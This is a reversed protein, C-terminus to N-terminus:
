HISRPHMSTVLAPVYSIPPVQVLTALLAVCLVCVCVRARACVCVCVRVCVRVVCWACVSFSVVVVSVVPLSRTRSAGARKGRPGVIIGVAFMGALMVYTSQVRPTSIDTIAWRHLHALALVLAMAMCTAGVRLVLLQTSLQKAPLSTAACRRKRLRACYLTTLVQKVARDPHTM